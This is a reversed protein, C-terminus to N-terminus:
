RESVDVRVRALNRVRGHRADADGDRHATVRVAPFYTGPVDFRHEVSLVASPGSVGEHRYPWRCRGDFDWEAAILSGAGPPVAARVTLRVTEGARARAVEGGDASAEVAPQIGGGGTEIRGETIRFSTDSPPERGDEVWAILDALAQEVCGAWDILRTTTVPPRGPPRDSAQIHGAHETLWVRLRDEGALHSRVKALYHGTGGIPSACTDHVNAVFLMHGAFAGTATVGALVESVSFPRQPFVPTDGSMFQWCEAADPDVQHRYAHCYALYDRNDLTIADGPRVGALATGAVDLVISDGVVGLCRFARSGVRVLAGRAGPPPDGGLALANPEAPPPPTRLMRALADPALEGATVIRTVTFGGAVVDDDLEGDAGAHGPVRWFEDFYEPDVQRHMGSTTLLVDLELAPHELQFETGPQLGARYATALEARQRTTLGAFPDRTGGPEWAASVRKIDDGLVRVLNGLLSPLSVGHGAPSIYPVAGDWLGPANELCLIARWGGGSGGMVYAHHPPAGYVQEAFRRAFRTAEATARYTTITGDATGRTRALPELAIHGGNSEVLMAGHAFAFGITGPGDGAMQAARGEHGGAGGEVYTLLRGGYDAPDPLYLAFRADTDEFGGHVHRHPHPQARQEDVDVFPAGFYPDEESV